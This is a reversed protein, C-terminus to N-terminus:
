RQLGKGYERNHMGQHGYKQGSYQPTSALISATGRKQTGNICGLVVVRVPKPCTQKGSWAEKNDPKAQKAM